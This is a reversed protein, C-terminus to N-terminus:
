YGVVGGDAGRSGTAGVGIRRSLATLVAEDTPYHSPLFGKLPVPVEDM